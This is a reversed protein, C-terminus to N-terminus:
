CGLTVQRCLDTVLSTIRPRPLELAQALDVILNAEPQSLPGDATAVVLAAQLFDEKGRGNLRGLLPRCVEPLPRADTRAAALEAVVQDRDMLKGTLARHRVGLVHVAVESRAGGAMLVRALVRRVILDFHEELTLPRAPAVPAGTLLQRRAALVDQGFRQRCGQCEVQNTEDGRSMVPLGLLSFVRRVAVMTYTRPGGCGPCHFRGSGTVALRDHLGFLPSASV